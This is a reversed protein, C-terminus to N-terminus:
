ENYWDYKNKFWNLNPVPYPLPCSKAERNYGAAYNETELAKNSGHKESIIVFMFFMNLVNPQPIEIM